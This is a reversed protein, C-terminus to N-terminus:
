WVSEFIGAVDKESFVRPHYELSRYQYTMVDSVLVEILDRSELVERLKMEMGVVRLLQEIRDALESAARYDDIIEDAGWLARSIKAFRRLDSDYSLRIVTTMFIAVAQGHALNTRASLPESLAHAVTTDSEAIAMGALTSAWAMSERYSLDNGRSVVAPLTAGIIRIAELAVVDTFPTHKNCLYAEIAHALADIGTSATVESPMTMTLEPDVLAVRPFIHASKLAAKRDTRRSTLVAYPTVESGTGATTPIAIIPLAPEQVSRGPPGGVGVYDWISGGSTAAIALGKSFDIVSGGGLAVLFDPTGRGMEEATANIAEATPNSEVDAYVDLKIENSRMDGLVSNAAGIRMINGDTILMGQTGFERVIDVLHELSGSGFIVKVPLHHCFGKM